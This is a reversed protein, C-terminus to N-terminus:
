DKKGEFLRRREDLPVVRLRGREAIVDTPIEYWSYGPVDSAPVFNGSADDWVEESVKQAYREV